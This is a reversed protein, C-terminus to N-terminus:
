FPSCNFCLYSLLLRVLISFWDFSYCLIVGLAVNTHMCMQVQLSPLGVTRAAALRFFSFVVKDISSVLFKCPTGQRGAASVHTVGPSSGM